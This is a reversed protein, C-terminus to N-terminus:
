KFKRRYSDFVASSTMYEERANLVMAVMMGMSLWLIPDEFFRAEMQASTFITLVWGLYGIGFIYNVKVTQSLRYLTQVLAVGILCLATIGLWGLEAMVTVASTHSLSISNPAPNQIYEALYKKQYGGLGVGWVPNEKFMDLGAKILDMRVSSAEGVGTIEKRISLFRRLLDANMLVATVGLGGLIGAPLLIRRSRLMIVMFVIIVALTVFGGRSMTLVVEALLVLLSVTYFIQRSRDKALYFLILCSVIALVLFRAFINPDVFTANIRWFGGQTHIDQWLLDGTLAQYFTLPALVLGALIVAKLPLSPDFRQSALLIVSFYLAVFVCLRLSEVITKGQDVSHFYSGAAILIYFGLAWTLPQTFIKLLRQRAEFSFILKFFAVIIIAFTTLRALTIMGLAQSVYPIDPYWLSSIELAVSVALLLILWEPKFLGLCIILIVTLALLVWEM